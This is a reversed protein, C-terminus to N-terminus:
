RQRGQMLMRLFMMDDMGNGMPQTPITPNPRQAGLGAVPSPPSPISPTLQPPIGQININRNNQGMANTVLNKSVDDLRNKFMNSLFGEGEKLMPAAEPTKTVGAKLIPAAEATKTVGAKLIPAAAKAGTTAMKNRVAAKGLLPLLFSFFAM